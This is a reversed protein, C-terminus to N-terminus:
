KESLGKTERVVFLCFLATLITIGGCGCFLIGSGKNDGGFAEILKPTFFAINVTAIWNIAVGISLGKETMIESM